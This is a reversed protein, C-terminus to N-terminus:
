PSEQVQGGKKLKLEEIIQDYSKGRTSEPTLTGILDLIEDGDGLKELLHVIFIGDSYPQTACKEDEDMREGNPTLYRVKNLIKKREQLWSEQNPTGSTKAVMRNVFKLQGYTAFGEIISLWQRNEAHAEMTIGVTEMHKSFDRGMSKKITALDVPTDADALTSASERLLFRDIGILESHKAHLLEHAATSIDRAELIDPDFYPNTYIDKNPLLGIIHRDGLRGGYVGSGMLARSYVAEIEMSPAYSDLHKKAFDAANNAYLDACVASRAIEIFKRLSVGYNEGDKAVSTYKQFGDGVAGAEIFTEQYMYSSVPLALDEMSLGISNLWASVKTTESYPRNAAEDREAVNDTESIPLAPIDLLLEPNEIFAKILTQTKEIISLETENFQDLRPHDKPKFNANLVAQAIEAKRKKKKEVEAIKEMENTQSDEHMM